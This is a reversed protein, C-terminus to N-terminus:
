SQAAGGKKGRDNLKIQYKTKIGFLRCIQQKPRSGAILPEHLCCVQALHEPATTPRFCIKLVSQLLQLAMQYPLQALHPVQSANQSTQTPMM